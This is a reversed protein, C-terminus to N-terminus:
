DKSFLNFLIQTLIFDKKGSPDPSKRSSPHGQKAKIESVETIKPKQSSTKVTSLNQMERM